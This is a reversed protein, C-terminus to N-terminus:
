EPVVEFDDRRLRLLIKKQDQVSARYSREGFYDAYVVVGVVTRSEPPMKVSPFVQGPVLEWSLVALKGQYQRQFDARAAFWEGARLGTLLNLVIGDTVVVIDLAVPYGGNVDRDAIISVNQLTEVKILLSKWSEMKFLSSCGTMLLCAVVMLAALRSFAIPKKM